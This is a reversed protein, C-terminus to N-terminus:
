VVFGRLICVSQIKLRLTQRKAGKKCCHHFGRFTGCQFLQGYSAASLM